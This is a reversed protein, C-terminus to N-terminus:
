HSLAVLAPVLVFATAGLRPRPRTANPSSLLAVDPDSATARRAAADSSRPVPKGAGAARAHALM